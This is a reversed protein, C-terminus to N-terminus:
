VAERQRKLLDAYALEERVNRLRNREAMKADYALLASYVSDNHRIWDDSRGQEIFFATPEVPGSNRAAYAQRLTDLWLRMDSLGTAVRQSLPELGDGSIQWEFGNIDVYNVDLGIPATQVDERQDPSGRVDDDDVECNEPAPRRTMLRDFFSDPMVGESVRIARNYDVWVTFMAQKVLNYAFASLTADITPQPCGAGVLQDYVTKFAAKVDGKNSNLAAVLFLDRNENRNTLGGQPNTTNDVFRLVAAGLLHKTYPSLEMPTEANRQHSPRRIDPRVLQKAPQRAGEPPDVAPPQPAPVYDDLALSDKRQARQDRANERTLVDSPNSM